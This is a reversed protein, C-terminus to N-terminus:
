FRYSAQIGYSLGEGPYGLGAGINDVDAPNGQSLSTFRVTNQFYEQDTLNKGFIAIEWSEDEAVYAIRADLLAFGDQGILNENNQTHFVRSQYSLQGFIDVRAGNSLPVEYTANVNLSVKPANNLRNGSLDVGTANGFTSIFEDYTADLYAASGNISLQESARMHVEAELGWVTAEAANTTVTLGDKFASVQLNKYDYYFASTNFRVLGDALESKSGIEYSWLTEPEFSPSNDFANWGGSKFGKSVTAYFLNDEDPRYEVGFRPTFENYSAEDSRSNFQVVNGVAALGRFDGFIAGVSSEDTKKEDSYRAGVSLTLADSVDYTVQGFAAISEATDANPIIFSIQGFSPHTARGLGLAGSKDEDLFFGGILWSWGDLGNSALRLEQSFQDTEYIFTSRTIEEETGDTNFFFDSEYTRFASISSLTVTDSVDWQLDVTVGGTKWDFFTDLNNRTVDIGDQPAPNLLFAFSLDDLPKATRNNSKFDSWDGIIKLTANESLDFEFTARIAALEQDDIDDSGGPELDKTYGDDNLYKAAIRARVGDSIPGGVAAEIERRNWNGYSATAYGEVEDTPARSIINIAGATANRGYLTGQPGRLVEIRDVDLFQTLGMNALTLYVGDLNIASSPDNTVGFASSGVGRIYIQGEGGARSFALGPTQVYLDQIDDIAMDDLMDGTIATIAAPVDQLSQSRKLATVVIEELVLDGSQAVALTPVGATLAAAAVTALLTSRRFM